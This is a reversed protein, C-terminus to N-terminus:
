GDFSRSHVEARWIDYGKPWGEASAHAAFTLIRTYVGAAQKLIHNGQKNGELKIKKLTQVSSTNIGSVFHLLARPAM